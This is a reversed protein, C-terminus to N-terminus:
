PDRRLPQLVRFRHRRAGWRGLLNMGDHFAFNYAVPAEDIVRGFNADGPRTKELIEYFLGMVGLLTSPDCDRFRRRHRLQLRSHVMGVASQQAPHPQDGCNGGRDRHPGGPGGTVAGGSGTVEIEWGEGLHQFTGDGRLGTHRRLREPERWVTISGAGSIVDSQQSGGGELVTPPSLSAASSHHPVQSAPRHAAPHINYVFLFRTTGDPMDVELYEGDPNTLLELFDDTNAQKQEGRTAEM